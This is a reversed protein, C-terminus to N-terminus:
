VNKNEQFQLLWEIMEMIDQEYSTMEEYYPKLDNFAAEFRQIIIKRVVEDDRSM